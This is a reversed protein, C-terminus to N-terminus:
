FYRDVKVLFIASFIKLVVESEEYSATELDYVTFYQHFMKFQYDFHELSKFHFIALWKIKGYFFYLNLVFRSPGNCFGKFRKYCLGIDLFRCRWRTRCKHSSPTFQVSLHILQDSLCSRSSQLQNPDDNTVQLYKTM